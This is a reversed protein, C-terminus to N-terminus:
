TLVKDMLEYGARASYGHRRYFDRGSENQRALQLAVNTCGATVFATEAAHLLRDGIGRSRFEPLVFFEDIEATLGLHELSLVYVALLYGAPVDEHFALWGCGLNSLTLLRQLQPSVRAPDFGTINEFRWYQEVLCLLTAMDGLGARRVEPTSTM